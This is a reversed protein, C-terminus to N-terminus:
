SKPGVKVTFPPCDLTVRGYDDESAAEFKERLEQVRSHIGRLTPKMTIAYDPQAEIIKQQAVVETDPKNSTWTDHSQFWVPYEKAMKPLPLHKVKKGTEVKRWYGRAPVPVSNRKCVKKLGVDSIGYRAAVKIIPEAWVEDYLQQRTLEIMKPM